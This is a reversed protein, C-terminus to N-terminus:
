PTFMTECVNCVVDNVEGRGQMADRFDGELVESIEKYQNRSYGRGHEIIRLMGSQSCKPCIIKLKIKDGGAM